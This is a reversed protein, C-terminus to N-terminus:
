NSWKLLRVGESAAGKGGTLARCRLLLSGVGMCPHSAGRGSTNRTSTTDTDPQCLEIALVPVHRPQCPACRLRIRRMAGKGMYGM